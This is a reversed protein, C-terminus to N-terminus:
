LGRRIQSVRQHSVGLEAAVRQLTWGQDEMARAVVAAREAQAADLEARAAAIRAEVSVLAESLEADAAADQERRTV